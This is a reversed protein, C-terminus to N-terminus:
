TISRLLFKAVRATCLVARARRGRVQFESLLARANVCPKAGHM